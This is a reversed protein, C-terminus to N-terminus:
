IPVAYFGAQFVPITNLPIQCSQKSIQEKGSNGISGRPHHKGTLFIIHGRLHM